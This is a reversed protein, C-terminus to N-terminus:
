DGLARRLQAWRERVDQVGQEREPDATFLDRSAMLASLQQLKSEMPAARLEAIEFEAVAAWRECYARAEAPTIPAM